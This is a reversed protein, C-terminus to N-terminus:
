QPPIYSKVAQWDEMSAVANWDHFNTAIEGWTSFYKIVILKIHAPVLPKLTKLIDTYLYDKNTEPSLVQVQILAFSPHPNNLEDAGFFTVICDSGTITKAVEKITQENLKKGKRFLALLYTKRQELNGEGKYRLFNELQTIKEISATRIFVNLMTNNILNYITDLEPNETDFLVQFELVDQKFRPLYKILDVRKEIDNIVELYFSYRPDSSDIFTKIGGQGVELLLNYRGSVEPANLDRSWSGDGNNVLSYAVGDITYKIYDIM